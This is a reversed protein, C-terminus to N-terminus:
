SSPYVFQTVEEKMKIPRVEINATTTYQFEPNDKAVAIADDLDNALIHYYGVQILKSKDLPVAQWEGNLKSIVKGQRILPQASIMKGAETLAEIYVQCQTVFEKEKESTFSSKSEEKNYILLMFEQM